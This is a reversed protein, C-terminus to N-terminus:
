ILWIMIGWMRIPLPMVVGNWSLNTEMILIIVQLGTLILKSLGTSSRMPVTAWELPYPYYMDSGYDAAVAPDYDFTRSTLLQYNERLYRPTRTPMYWTQTAVNGDRTDIRELQHQTLLRTDKRFTLNFKAINYTTGDVTKTVVITAKSGDTVSWPTNGGVGQKRFKIVRDKDSLNKTQLSLGAGNDALQVSLNVDSSGSVGPLGYGMASKSLTVVEDTRNSIHDCPFTIDYEELFKKGTANGGQYETSLLRGHGKTWFDPNDPFDKEADVKDVGVIVYVARLSLTPEIPNGRNPM